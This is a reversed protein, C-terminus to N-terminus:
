RGVSAASVFARLDRSFAGLAADNTYFMHGGEYVRTEVRDRPFGGRAVFYRAAGTTTTTDYLGTGVFLRLKANTRMARAM